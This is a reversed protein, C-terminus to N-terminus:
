VWTLIGDDLRIYVGSNCKSNQPKYIVRIQCNGFREPKYALLGMGRGDPEAKISDGDIIFQGWGIHVWDDTIKGEKILPLTRCPRHPPAAAPLSTSASFTFLVVALLLESTRM